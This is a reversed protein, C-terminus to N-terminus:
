KANDLLFRKFDEFSSSLLVSQKTGAMFAQLRQPIEVKEGIIPEITQLFKAPHATEIFFGAEGAKLGESLARYGCAGHPDLLYHHKQWTEKVTQRIDDDTYTAGSIDAVIESHSHHYLDVVRAFNSPDGVDMANALTPISPRPNYEGTKLYQYFIDNRNNAAIFRYIPLGMRKGFLAATINGFNGSPVCAVVKNNKGLKRLQAYGYFYYFAQPLFRAVNISNASTLTLHENLQSDMFASKVLAQCDDFNGDVEIATINQGLTTFQKEQIESVKGKPYLVFVHIGEVGLFGNAVASGTDGSTAVLVNVQKKGEKKIFYSLLRAMFRAGVDKFALTPGHFLELSYINESVSVLPTDFCLTDYVIQKLTEAPVDEGFFAGAVRYSIEQFSLKDIEEYFSAPLQKIQQPMYLGRDSALGKVVAEELSALPAKQNTSYYKM